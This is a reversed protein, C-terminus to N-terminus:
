VNAACVIGLYMAVLVRIRHASLNIPVASNRGWGLPMQTIHAHYLAKLMAAALFEQRYLPRVRFGLIVHCILLMHLNPM